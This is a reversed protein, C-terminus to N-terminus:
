VRSLNAPIAASLLVHRRTQKTKLSVFRSDRNRHIPAVSDTLQDDNCRPHSRHRTRPSLYCRGSELMDTVPSSEQRRTETALVEEWM